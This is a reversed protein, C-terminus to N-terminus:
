SKAQNFSELPLTILSCGDVELANHEAEVDASVRSSTSSEESAMSLSNFFYSKSVIMLGLMKLCM